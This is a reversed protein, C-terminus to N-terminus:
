DGQQRASNFDATALGHDDICSGKGPLKKGKGADSFAQVANGQVGRLKEQQVTGTGTSSGLEGRDSNTGTGSSVAKVSQGDTVFIDTKNSDSKIFIVGGEASARDAWPKQSSQEQNKESPVELDDNAPSGQVGCDTSKPILEDTGSAAAADPGETQQSSSGGM